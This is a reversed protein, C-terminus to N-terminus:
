AYLSRAPASAACTASNMAKGPRILSRSMTPRTLRLSGKRLEFYMTVELDGPAAQVQALVQGQRVVEGDFRLTSLGAYVSYWGSAHDVVVTTGFGRM